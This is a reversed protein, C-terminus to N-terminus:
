ALALRQMLPHTDCPAVTSRVMKLARKAGEKKEAAIEQIAPTIGHTLARRILDSVSMELQEALAELNDGQEKSTRFGITKESM